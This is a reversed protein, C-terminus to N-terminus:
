GKLDFLGPKQEAYIGWLDLAAKLEKYATDPFGVAKEEGYKAVAAEVAECAEAYMTDNGNFVIDFLLVTIGGI